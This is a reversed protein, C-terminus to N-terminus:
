HRHGLFDVSVLGFIRVQISLVEADVEVTASPLLWRDRLCNIMWIIRIGKDFDRVEFDGEIGAGLDSLPGFGELYPVWLERDSDRGVGWTSAGGPSADRLLEWVTTVTPTVAFLVCCGGFEGEGGGDRSDLVGQCVAGIPALPTLLLFAATGAWQLLNRFLAERQCVLFLEGWNVLLPVVKPSTLQVDRSKNASAPPPLM